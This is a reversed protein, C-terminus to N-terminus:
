AATFQMINARDGSALRVRTQKYNDLADEDIQIVRPDAGMLREVIDKALGSNPSKSIIYSPDHELTLIIIKYNNERVFERVAKVVGFNKYTSFDHGVIFGDEKVKRNILDLDAKVAEYTHMGDLYLWDLYGDALSPLWEYSYARHVSVRGSAISDKFNNLVLNYKHNMDHKISYTTVYEDDAGGWPDILHLKRPENYKLIDAAFVGNWVGIEATVSQTPLFPLLQTRSLPTITIM